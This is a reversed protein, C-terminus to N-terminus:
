LDVDYWHVRGNDVRTIRTDLGAGLNIVIGEPSNQLFTKVANDLVDTRAIIGHHTISGGDYKSTDIAVKGLIEVAKMDHIIADKRETERSKVILPIFLTESTCDQSFSIEIKSNGMHDDERM